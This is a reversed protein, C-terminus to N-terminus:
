ADDGERPAPKHDPCFDKDLADRLSRDPHQVSTGGAKAAAARMAPFSKIFGPVEPPPTFEKNCGRGFRSGEAPPDRHDCWLRVVRVATM